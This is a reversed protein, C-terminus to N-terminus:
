IVVRLYKRCAQAVAPTAARRALLHEAGLWELTEGFVASAGADVLADTVAGILPNAVIGSSPDSRGCELGVLLQGIDVPERRQRSIERALRAGARLAHPPRLRVLTRPLRTAYLPGGGRANDRLAADRLLTGGRGM